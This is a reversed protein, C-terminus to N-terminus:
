RKAPLQPFLIADAATAQRLQVDDIYLMQLGPGDCNIKFTVEMSTEQPTLYIQYYRGTSQVLSFSSQTSGLVVQASCINDNRGAAWFTVIYGIGPCTAITESKFTFDERNRSVIRAVRKGAPRPFAIAQWPSKTIM